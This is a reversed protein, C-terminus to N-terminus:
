TFQIVFFMVLFAIAVVVVSSMTLCTAGLAKGCHDRMHMRERGHDAALAGSFHEVNRRLQGAVQAREGQLATSNRLPAPASAADGRTNRASTTSRTRDPLLFADSEDALVLLLGVDAAAAAASAEPTQTLLTEPRFAERVLAEPSFSHSESTKSDTSTCRSSVLGVVTVEHPILCFEVEPSEFLTGVLSVREQLTENRKHLLHKIAFNRFRVLHQLTAKYM